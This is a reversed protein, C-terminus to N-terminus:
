RQAGGRYGMLVAQEEEVADAPRDRRRARLCGCNGLVVVIGRPPDTVREVTPANWGQPVGAVTCARRLPAKGTDRRKNQEPQDRRRSMDYSNAASQGAPSVHLTRQWRQTRSKRRGGDKGRLRRMRSKGAREARAGERGERKWGRRGGRKSAGRALAWWAPGRVGRWLGMSVPTREAIQCPSADPPAHREERIGGPKEKRRNRKRARKRKGPMANEGEARRGHAGRRLHESEARPARSRQGHVPASSLPRSTRELHALHWRAPEARRPTTARAARAAAESDVARAAAKAEVHGVSPIGARPTQELAQQAPSAPRPSRVAARGPSRSYGPPHCRATEDGRRPPPPAHVSIKTCPRTSFRAGLQTPSPVRLTCRTSLAEYERSRRDVPAALGTALPDPTSRSWEVAGRARRSPSQGRRCSPTTLHQISPQGRHKVLLRKQAYAQRAASRARDACSRLPLTQASGHQQGVEGREGQGRGGWGKEERRRGWGERRPANKEKREDETGPIMTSGDAPRNAASRTPSPTDVLAHAHSNPCLPVNLPVLRQPVAQSAVLRRGVGFRGPHLYPKPCAPAKGLQQMNEMSDTKGYRM